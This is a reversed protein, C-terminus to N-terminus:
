KKKYGAPCVPKVATVKKTLKGKVCTITTKKLAAAKADSEKKAKLDAAAIADAEQRAKLDAAAKADAEKKAKLEAAAKEEAIKNSGGSITVDTPLSEIGTAVVYLKSPGNEIESGITMNFTSPVMPTISTSSIGSTTAYFVHHSANNVIRVLPYNTAAQWEDGWHLGQTLGSLQKGSITYQTKPSLNLSSVSSVVPAWNAEPSGTGTFFQIGGRDAIMIQGNPLPLFFTMNPGSWSPLSLLGAPLDIWSNTRWDYEVYRAPAMSRGPAIGNGSITSHIYTATITLINGNPLIAAENDQAVLQLGNKLKAFPPVVSWSNTTPNYLGNAGLSGTQLVNGNRLGLAPGVEVFNFLANTEGASSWLGTAPDYIEAISTGTGLNGGAPQQTTLVKDNQLLTFGAENNEGVKNAGTLAWSNTIPDYLMSENANSGDPSAGILIRGDALAANPGMLARWDGQGNNPPAIQKWSNTEVNYIECINTGNTVVGADTANQEGGFVMLNGDHLVAGNYTTPNYDKPSPAQKWTGTDYNGNIDPTLLWWKQRSEVGGNSTQVMVKGNTLLFMLRAGGGLDPQPSMLKWPSNSKAPIRIETTLIWAGASNQAVPEDAMSLVEFTGDSKPQLLYSTAGNTRAPANCPGCYWELGYREQNLAFTVIGNSDTTANTHQQPHNVPYISVQIGSGVNAKTLPNMMVFSIQVTSASSAQTVATASAILLLSLFISLKRM